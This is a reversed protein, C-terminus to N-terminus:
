NKGKIYECLRRSIFACNSDVYQGTYKMAMCRFTVQPEITSRDFFGELPAFEWPFVCGTDDRWCWESTTISNNQRTTNIRLGIWFDWLEWNLEMIALFTLNDPIFALRGM